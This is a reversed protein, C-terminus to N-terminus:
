SLLDWYAHVRVDYDTFFGKKFFERKKLLNDSDFIDKLVESSSWDFTWFELPNDEYAPETEVTPKVPPETSPKLLLALTIM